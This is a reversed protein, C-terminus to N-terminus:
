LAPAVALSTQPTFLLTYGDPASKAVLDAAIMGSAGARSDVLMSQGWGEGGKQAGIRAGVDTSGGAAFGGVLRVPKQPYNQAGAAFALALAVAGAAFRPVFMLM